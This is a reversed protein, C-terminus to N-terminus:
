LTFQILKLLALSLVSPMTAEELGCHLSALANTFTVITYGTYLHNYRDVRARAFNSAVLLM